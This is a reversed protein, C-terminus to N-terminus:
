SDTLGVKCKDRTYRDVAAYATSDNSEIVKAWDSKIYDPAKAALDKAAKDRPEKSAKSAAVLEDPTAGKPPSTAEFVARFMLAQGCYADIQTESKSCGVVALSILIVIALRKVWAVTASSRPKATV